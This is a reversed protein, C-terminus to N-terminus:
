ARFRFYLGAALMILGIVGAIILGVVPIPEQPEDSEAPEEATTENREACEDCCCECHEQVESANQEERVNAECADESAPTGCEPCATLSDDYEANCSVCKKM